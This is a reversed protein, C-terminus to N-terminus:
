EAARIKDAWEHMVREQERALRVFAAGGARHEEAHGFANSKWWVIWDGVIVEYTVVRDRITTRGVVYCRRLYEPRGLEKMATASPETVDDGDRDDDDTQRRTTM